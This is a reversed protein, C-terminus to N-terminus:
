VAPRQRRRRALRLLWLPLRMLPYLFRLAPPLPHRLTDDLSETLLGSQAFVFALGRGRFFQSPLLRFPGFPRHALEVEGRGGAVADLAAATMWRQAWSRELSRALAPPPSVGLLRQRLLLAQGACAEVGQTAAYAYFAEIEADSKHSLWANLDALWKLRFWAHSAGHVCLYAFLQPDALTRAEGHPLRVTQSPSDAGLGALLARNDALRWHLEVRTRRDLCVLELDKHLRLVTQRQAPTLDRYGALPQYGDAELLRWTTEVCAPPVIFDIDRGHKLAQSGYALQALTAGKFFLAPIATESLRQHLRATEAALTAGVRAVSAARAVLQRQIAAPMPARATLLAHQALGYVRQRDLVRLFADWDVGECAARVRQDREASPPWLCCACALRFEPTLRPRSPAPEAAIALNDAAANV